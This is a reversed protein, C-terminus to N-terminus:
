EDTPIERDLREYLPKRGNVNNLEYRLGTAPVRMYVATGGEYSRLDFDVEMGASKLRELEEPINETWWGAHDLRPGATADWPSGPPGELLEIHPPGEISYVLRYSWDGTTRHIPECWTLGAARGMEDMAAELDQVVIGIHFPAPV